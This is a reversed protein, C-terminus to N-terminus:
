EVTLNGPLYAVLGGSQQFSRLLALEEIAAELGPVPIDLSVEVAPAQANSMEEVLLDLFGKKEPLRVIGADAAGGLSRAKAVAVDLGGLEDVLHRGDLAQTGTWVRGQAVGEIVEASVGRGAAVMGVFDGYGEDVFAQMIAQDAEDKEGVMHLLDAHEGRKYVHQALLLKDYTETADFMVSFIGISGTITTPQAVIWDAPASIMYGGSAAYDAMSVVVPKGAAKTLAVQRAMQDSALASGGPSNVRVVVAKISDDERAKEMWTAFDGDYLGGGGFLGGSGKGSQITGEAFVVAIRDDSSGRDIEKRYESLKTFRDKLDDKSEVVIPGALKAEWGDEEVSTLHAVVADQYAQADFLGSAIAGEPTLDPHDLVSWVQEVSMGRSAAIEAIVTDWLGDLLFEYSQVAQESPEMREYPEVATKYDGVHTLRPKVGLYALADKYYTVSISQGVILPVGSPALVVKDCASALYYDRMTFVEGYAVCPKGAERLEVLATRIERALGWGMQPALTTLYVGDIREDGIAHRIAGAVETATPPLKDADVFMGGTPPADTVAGTLNVRLFSGDSVKAVSEGQMLWVIAGFAIGFAAIVAVTAGLLLVTITRGRSRPKQASDAM